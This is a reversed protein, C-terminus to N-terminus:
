VEPTERGCNTPLASPKKPIADSFFALGLVIGTVIGGIGETMQTLPHVIEFSTLFYAPSLVVIGLLYLWAGWRKLMLLGVISAIYLGAGVMMGAILAWGVPHAPDFETFYDQQNEAIALLDPPLLRETWISVGVYLPILVLEAVVAIRLVKAANM